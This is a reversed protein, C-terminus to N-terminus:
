FGTEAADRKKFHAATRAYMTVMRGTRTNMWPKSLVLLPGLALEEAIM